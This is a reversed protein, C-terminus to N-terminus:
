LGYKKKIEEISKTVNGNKSQLLDSDSIGQLIKTETKSIPKIKM